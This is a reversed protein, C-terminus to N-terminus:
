SRGLLMIKFFAIRASSGIRSSLLFARWARSIVKPWVIPSASLLIVRALAKTQGTVITELDLIAFIIKLLIHLASFPSKAALFSFFTKTNVTIGKNTQHCLWKEHPHNLAYRCFFVRILHATFTRQFCYQYQM